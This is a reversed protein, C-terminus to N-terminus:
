PCTSVPNGCLLRSDVWGILGQYKIKIWDQKLDIIKLDEDAPVLGIQKGNKPRNLIPTDWNARIGIVSSHIWLIGQPMKIEGDDVTDIRLVRFWGNKGQVISFIYGYEPPKLTKIIKGNPVDRLNIGNPDWDTNYVELVYYEPNQSIAYHIKGKNSISITTIEHALTDITEQKNSDTIGWIVKNFVMISDKLIEFNITESKGNDFDTTTGIYFSDISEFYKNHTSLFYRTYSDVFQLLSVIVGQNNTVAIREAYFNGNQGHENLINPYYKALAEKDLKGHLSLKEKQNEDIGKSNQVTKQESAIKLDKSPKTKSNASGLNRLSDVNFYEGEKYYGIEGCYLMPDQPCPDYYFEALRYNTYMGLEETVFGGLDEEHDIFYGTGADGIFGFTKGGLEYFYIGNENTYALPKGTKHETSLHERIKEKIAKELAAHDKVPYEVLYLNPYVESQIFRMNKFFFHNIGIAVGGVALMVLAVQVRKKSKLTWKFLRLCLMLLLVAVIVLIVIFVILM